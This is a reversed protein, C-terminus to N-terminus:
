RRVLEDAAIGDEPICERWYEVSEKLRGIIERNRDATRSFIELTLYVESCMAPLGEEPGREYARCIAELVSRAVITGTRNYERTFPEHASSTGSTQQLHIIPSYCALCELWRYPDTDGASAFLHPYRNMETQMEDLVLDDHVGTRTAADELMKYASDPGLWIDGACWGSRARELAERMKQTEPRTFRRQGTQHGTDITVYFPVGSRRWVERLLRKAGPITWPIQHPSYMQEVGVAKVGIAAAFGALEAFDSYLRDEAERYRDPDQLVSDAFAHCFFGVGTGLRCALRLMPKLWDDLMRRRIRADGHGLGLTAYTGHGSYLNVVQVGTEEASTAVADAWDRLYEPTTYLPDCENDASAEVYVLGLDRVIRMWESPDTWRKSAFCNDVALFIRPYHPRSASDCLEETVAAVSGSQM